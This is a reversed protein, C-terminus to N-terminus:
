CHSWPLFTSVTIDHELIGEKDTDVVSSKNWEEESTKEGSDLNCKADATQGQSPPCINENGEISAEANDNQNHCPSPPEKCQDTEDFMVDLRSFEKTLRSTCLFGQNADNGIRKDYRRESFPSLPSLLDRHRKKLISPTCAFTKAASKLVADPSDDSSPSDWLKFPTLSNMSSMMLQRIGLPSYDQLADTGSQALDCSFFPVDLSPFRPPEYCLTGGEQGSTCEVAQQVISPGTQQSDSIESTCTNVPVLRSPEKLDTQEALGVDIHDCCLSASHNRAHILGDEANAAAEQVQSVALSENTQNLEKSCIVLTNGASDKFPISSLNQCDSPEVVDADLPNCSQLATTGDTGSLKLNSQFNLSETYRDMDIVGSCTILNETSRDGAESPFTVQVHGGETKQKQKPVNSAMVVDNVLGSRGYGTPQYSLAHGTDEKHDTLLHSGSLDSSDSGLEMCSVNPLSIMGFDSIMATYSQPEKSFNEELYASPCSFEYPMDPITFTIDDLSTSYQVSCSAAPSTTQMRGYDSEDPLLSDERTYCATHSNDSATQSCGVQSCESNDEAETGDKCVSGDGSSHHVRLSAASMSQHNQHSMLPLGQFQALLGSAIYSDLKKKV